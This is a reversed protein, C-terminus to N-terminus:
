SVFRYVLKVEDMYAIRMMSHKTDKVYFFHQAVILTNNNIFGPKQLTKVIKITTLLVRHENAVIAAALM